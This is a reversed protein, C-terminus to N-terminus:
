RGMLAQTTKSIGAVTKALYPGKLVAGGAQLLLGALALDIGGVVVAAAMWGWGAGTALWFLLVANTLLLVVILLAAGTGLLLLGTIVRRREKSVEQLAMQVHLDMISALLAAVRQAVGGAWSRSDAVRTDRPHTAM